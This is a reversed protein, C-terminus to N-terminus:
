RAVSMPALTQFADGPGYIEASNLPGNTGVGGAVFVRGEGLSVACQDYRAERMRAAAQWGTEPTPNQGSALLASFLFLIIRFYMHPSERSNIVHRKQAQWNPRGGLCGVLSM